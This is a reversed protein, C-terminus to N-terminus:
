FIILRHLRVMLGSPPTLKGVIDNKGAHRESTEKTPQRPQKEPIVCSSHPSARCNSSDLLANEMKQKNVNQNAKQLEFLRRPRKTTQESPPTEINDKAGEEVQIVLDEYSALHSEFTGTAVHMNWVSERKEYAAQELRETATTNAEEDFFTWDIVHIPHDKNSFNTSCKDPVDEYNNKRTKSATSSMTIDDNQLGSPPTEINDKAAEEVQIVLDEYSALHSEFTGTAVHMNWVSERKEYAAQELRETATTNAEEDFFTWGLVHIPHSTKTPPVSYDTV